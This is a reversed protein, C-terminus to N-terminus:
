QVPITFSFEDRGHFAGSLEIRRKEQCHSTSRPARARTGRPNGEDRCDALRLPEHAAAPPENSSDGETERAAVPSRINKNAHKNALNFENKLGCGRLGRVAAGAKGLRYNSSNSGLHILRRNSGRTIVYVVHDIGDSLPPCTSSM